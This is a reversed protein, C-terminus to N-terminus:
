KQASAQKLQTEIVTLYFLSIVDELTANETLNFM